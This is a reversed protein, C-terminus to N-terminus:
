TVLGVIVTNFAEVIVAWGIPLVFTYSILEAIYAFEVFEDSL